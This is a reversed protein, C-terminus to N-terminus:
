SQLLRVQELSLKTENERLKRFHKSIASSAFSKTCQVFFYDDKTPERGVVFGIIEKEETIPQIITAGMPVEKYWKWCHPVPIYPLGLMRAYGQGNM